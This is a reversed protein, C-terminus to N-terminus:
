SAQGRDVLTCLAPERQSIGATHPAGTRRGKRFWGRFRQGYPFRRTDGAPLVEPRPTGGTWPPTPPSGSTGTPRACRNRCYRWCRWPPRGTLAMSCGPTLRPADAAGRSGVVAGFNQWQELTLTAEVLPLAEDEEHKLHGRLKDALEGTLAGLREPGGDRDALAADIAVLLPDIVTHEAEMAEVVALDGPRGALDQRMAPWLADDESSHHVLLATTFMQWGAASALIRWPDGGARATIRAIHELERRLANHIAYMLTMDLRGSM